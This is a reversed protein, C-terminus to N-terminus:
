SVKYKQEKFMKYTQNSYIIIAIEFIHKLIIDMRGHFCGIKYEHLFGSRM